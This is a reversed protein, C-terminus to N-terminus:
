KYIYNMVQEEEYYKRVSVDNQIRQSHGLSDDWNWDKFGLEIIRNHIELDYHDRILRARKNIDISNNDVTSNRNNHQVYLMKKIHVIRTNLFTRIILEFDDAVPLGKNHGGIKNYLDREWVRVHNPMSINFRITLPNIDPYHHTLYQKADKEVWTHGAYGFDFNNDERAYWNGSWNHDYYKMDGNEYVECVDSYMFGADPFEQSADYCEQLCDKTLVDDHDLEVLWKGECLSSARNKALGVNGGTIPFIKYAKVRSDNKAIYQVIEWTKDDPSDDLIVWEWDPFTQGKLSEYARFIKYETKYSPTFISFTPRVNSCNKSIVHTIIDNALKSDGASSKPPFETYSFCREALVPNDTEVLEGEYVIIDPNYLSIDKELEGTFRLSHLFITNELNEQHYLNSNIEIEGLSHWNYILAKIKKVSLM